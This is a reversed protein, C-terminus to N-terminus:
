DLQCEQSECMKIDTLAGNVTKQMKMLREEIGNSLTLFRQHRELAANAATQMDTLTDDYVEDIVRIRDMLESMRKLPDLCGDCRYGYILERV